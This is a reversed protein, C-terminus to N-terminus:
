GSNLQHRGEIGMKRYARTLHTTVTRASILLRDAIARNSLGQAAPEAVRERERGVPSSGDM